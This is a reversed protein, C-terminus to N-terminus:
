RRSGESVSGARAPARYISMAMPWNPPRYTLDVASRLGEVFRIMTLATATDPAILTPQRAASRPPSETGLDVLATRCGARSGAEIDDLIDGVFWSRELTIGLDAAARLLLGPQPKRCDCEIAFPEVVGEPHHPCYYIGDLNVSEAGLNQRLADHMRALDQETMFGRAVGSQNTIVVLRWGAVQFARLEPVIGDALVLEEPRTPYHRPQVLTGDRDLFIARATM